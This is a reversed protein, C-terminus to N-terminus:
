SCPAEMLRRYDRWADRQLRGIFHIVRVHEPTPWERAYLSATHAYVDPDLLLLKMGGCNLVEGHREFITDDLYSDLLLNLNNQDCPIRQNDSWEALFQRAPRTNRAAIFSANLYSGFRGSSPKTQQTPIAVDFDVEFLEDISRLMMADADMWVSWEKTLYRAVLDPKEHTTAGNQMAVVETLNEITYEYGHHEAYRKGLEAMATYQRAGDHATVIRVRDM